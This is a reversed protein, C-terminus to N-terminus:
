CVCILLSPLRSCFVRTVRPGRLVVSCGCVCRAYVPSEPDVFSWRAGVQVVHVCAYLMCVRMCLMCVRMCVCAYLCACGSCAYMCVRVQVCAYAVRALAYVCMPRAQPTRPGSPGVFEEPVCMFVPPKQAANAATNAKAARAKTALAMMQEQVPVLGLRKAEAKGVLLLPENSKDELIDITVERVCVVGAPTELNIDAILHHTCPVKGGDATIAWQKDPPNQKWAHGKAKLKKAFAQHITARNCGDADMIYYGDLNGITARGDACTPEKANPRSASDTQLSAGAAVDVLPKALRKGQAPAENQRVHAHWQTLTWSKREPPM